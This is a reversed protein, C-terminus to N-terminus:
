RETSCIWKTIGRMPWVQQLVSVVLAEVSSAWDTGVGDDLSGELVVEKVLVVGDLVGEPVLLGFHGLGPDDVAV